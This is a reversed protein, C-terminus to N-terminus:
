STPMRRCLITLFAKLFASFNNQRGVADHRVVSFGAMFLKCRKKRMRMLPFASLDSDSLISSRTEDM